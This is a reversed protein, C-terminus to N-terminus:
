YIKGRYIGYKCDFYEIECSLFKGILICNNWM